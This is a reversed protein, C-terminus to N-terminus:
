GGTWVTERQNPCAIPVVAEIADANAAFALADPEGPELNAHESIECLQKFPAILGFFRKKVACADPAKGLCDLIM